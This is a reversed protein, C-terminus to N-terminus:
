RVILGALLVYFYELVTVPALRKSSVRISVADTQELVMKM